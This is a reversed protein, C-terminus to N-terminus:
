SANVETLLAEDEKLDTELVHNMPALACIM